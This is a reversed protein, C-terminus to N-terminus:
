FLLFFKGNPAEFFGGSLFTLVNGLMLQTNFINFSTIKYDSVQQMSLYHCEALNEFISQGGGKRPAGEKATPQLDIKISTM